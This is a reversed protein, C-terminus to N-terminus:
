HCKVGVMKVKFGEESLTEVNEPHLDNARVWSNLLSNVETIDGCGQIENILLEFVAKNNGKIKFTKLSHWKAGKWNHHRVGSYKTNM